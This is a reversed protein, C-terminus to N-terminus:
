EAMELLAGLDANAATQPRETAKTNGRLPELPRGLDGGELAEFFMERASDSDAGKMPGM